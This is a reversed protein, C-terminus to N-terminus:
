RDQLVHSTIVHQVRISHHIGTTDAASVVRAVMVVARAVGTSVAPNLGAKARTRDGAAYTVCKLMHMLFGVIQSESWTHCLGPQVTM